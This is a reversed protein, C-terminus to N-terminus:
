RKKTSAARMEVQIARTESILATMAECWAQADLLRLSNQLSVGPFTIRIDCGRGPRHLGIEAHMMLSENEFGKFPQATLRVGWDFVERDITRAETVRRKM